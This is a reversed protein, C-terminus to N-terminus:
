ANPEVFVPTEPSQSTKADQTLRLYTLTWAANAYTLGLGQVLSALPIVVAMLIAFPKFFTSPDPAYNMMDVSFMIAFQAVQMPLMIIMGLIWQIFLLIITMLVLPWFKQKMVDWARRLADFVGLDEVVVAAMALSVLLYAVLELPLILLFLPLLCIFGIGATVAGVLAGFFMFIGLFLFIVFFVLFVVGFVRGIYPLTSNWLEGFSISDERKELDFTGKLVGAFSLAMMAYSFIMFGILIVFFLIPFLPNIDPASAYPELFFAFNEEFFYFFVGM